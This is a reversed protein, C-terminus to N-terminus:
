YCYWAARFWLDWGQIRAIYKSVGFITTKITPGRINGSVLFKQRFLRHLLRITCWVVEPRNKTIVDTIDRM